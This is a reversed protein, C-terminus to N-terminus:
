ENNRFSDGEWDPCHRGDWGYPHMGCVLLNGSYARGHYHRCGMCAPNRDHTADVKYGMPPEFDDAIADFETYVIVIPEFLDELGDLFEDLDEEISDKVQTAATEIAEGMEQFFQEVEATVTDLLNFLDKSWDDM